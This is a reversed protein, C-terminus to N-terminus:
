EIALEYLRGPTGLVIHPQKEKLGDMQRHVNAGGILSVSRIGTNNCLSACVSAVQVCLERTPEIILVQVRKQQTHIGELIPLLFAEYFILRFHSSAFISVLTKGSGTHSGLTVDLGQKISPIASTQIPLPTEYGLKSINQLLTKNSVLSDFSAVLNPRTLQRRKPVVLRHSFHFCTRNLQKCYISNCVNPSIYLHKQYIRSYSGVYRGSSVIFGFCASNERM